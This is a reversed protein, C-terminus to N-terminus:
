RLHWCCIRIFRWSSPRYGHHLLACLFASSTPFSFFSRGSYLLVIPPFISLIGAFAGNCLEKCQLSCPQVFSISKLSKKRLQSVNLTNEAIVWSASGRLRRHCCITQSSWRHSGQSQREGVVTPLLRECNTELVDGDFRRASCSM